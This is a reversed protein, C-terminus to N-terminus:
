SKKKKKKKKKNKKIKKNIKKRKKAEPQFLREPHWKQMLFRLSFQAKDNRPSNQHVNKRKLSFFANLIGNKCLSVYHFRRRSMELFIQTHMKKRKKAEPQFFREPHWKQMLFRLSFPAKVNRPFNPDVGLDLGFPHMKADNNGRRGM